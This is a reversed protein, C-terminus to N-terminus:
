ILYVYFFNDILLCLVHMSDSHIKPHMNVKLSDHWRLMDTIGYSIDYTSISDEEVLDVEFLMDYVQVKPSHELTGHLVLFLVSVQISIDVDNYTTIYAKLITSCNRLLKNLSQTRVFMLGLLDSKLLLLMVIVSSIDVYVELKDSRLSYTFIKLEITLYFAHFTQM